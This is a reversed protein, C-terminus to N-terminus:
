CLVSSYLGDGLSGDTGRQDSIESLDKLEMWTLYTFTVWMDAVVCKVNKGYFGKICLFLFKEHSNVDEVSVLYSVWHFTFNNGYEKYVRTKWPMWTNYKISWNYPFLTFNDISTVFSHSRNQWIYFIKKQRKKCLRQWRIVKINWVSVKYSKWLM